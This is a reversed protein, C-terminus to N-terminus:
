HSKDTTESITHIAPPCDPATPTQPIRGPGTPQAPATQMPVTFPQAPATQTPETFPQPPLQLPPQQQPLVQHLVQGADPEQPQPSQQPEADDKKSRKRPATATKRSRHRSSRRRRAPGSSSTACTSHEPEPQQSQLTEAESQAVEDWKAVEDAMSRKNAMWNEPNAADAWQWPAAEVGCGLIMLTLVLLM